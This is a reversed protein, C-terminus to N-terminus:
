SPSPNVSPHYETDWLLVDTVSMPCAPAPSGSSHSLAPFSVSNAHLPPDLFAGPPLCVGSDCPQPQVPLRMHELPLTFLTKPLHHIPNAMHKSPFLLPRHRLFYSTGKLTHRVDKHDMTVRMSISLVCYRTNGLSGLPLQKM